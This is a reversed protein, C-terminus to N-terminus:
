PVPPLVPPHGPIPMTLVCFSVGAGALRAPEDTVSNVIANALAEALMGGLGNNANGSNQQVRRWSMQWLVAGTSAEVMRAFGAVAVGSALVTYKTNWETIDNDVLYDAHLDQGLRTTTQNSLDKLPIGTSAAYTVVTDANVVQFNARKLAEEWDKDVVIQAGPNDTHNVSPLIAVRVPTRDLYRWRVDQPTTSCGGLLPGLAALWVLGLVNKPTIM